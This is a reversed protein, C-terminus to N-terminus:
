ERNQLFHAANHFYNRLIPAVESLEPVRDLAATMHWLWADRAAADIAFPLHRMRLRPHGRKESYATPGGCFQILFLALHVRAEAMGEGDAPYMPGLIPDTEVGEYFADVLRAFAEGARDGGGLREWIENPRIAEM